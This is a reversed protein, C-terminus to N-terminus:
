RSFVLRNRKEIIIEGNKKHLTVKKEGKILTIACVSIPALCFLLM